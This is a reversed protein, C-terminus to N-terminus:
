WSVRALELRSGAEGEQTWALLGQGAGTVALQPYKGGESGAVTERAAVQGDPGV